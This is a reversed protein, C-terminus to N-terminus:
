KLSVAISNTNNTKDTEKIKNDPDLTVTFLLVGGKPLSMDTLHLESQGGAELPQTNGAVITAQPSAYIARVAVGPAALVGTNSYPVVFAVLKNNANNPDDSVSSLIDGVALDALCEGNVSVGVSFSIPKTDKLIADVEYLTNSCPRDTQSLHVTKSKGVNLPTVQVPGTLPYTKLGASKVGIMLIDLTVPDGANVTDKDVTVFMPPPSQPNQSGGNKNNKNPQAAHATPLSFALLVFLMLIFSRALNLPQKM